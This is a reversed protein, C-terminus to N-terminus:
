LTLQCHLEPNAPGPHSGQNAREVSGGACFFFEGVQRLLGTTRLNWLTSLVMSIEHGQGM